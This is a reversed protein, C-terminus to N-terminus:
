VAWHYYLRGAQHGIPAHTPHQCSGEFIILNSSFNPKLRVKHVRGDDVAAQYLKLHSRLNKEMSKNLKLEGFRYVNGREGVPIDYLNKKGALLKKVKKENFTSVHRGTLKRRFGLYTGALADREKDEPADAATMELEWDQQQEYEIDGEELPLGLNVSPTVSIPM